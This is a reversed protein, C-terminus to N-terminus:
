VNLLCTLHWNIWRINYYTCALAFYCEDCWAHRNSFCRDGKFDGAHIYVRTNNNNYTHRIWISLFDLFFFFFLYFRVNWIFIIDYAYTYKKCKMESVREREKTRPSIRASQAARVLHGSARTNINPDLISNWLFRFATFIHRCTRRTNLKKKEGKWKAPATYINYTDRPAKAFRM